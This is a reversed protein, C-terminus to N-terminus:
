GKKMRLILTAQHHQSIRYLIEVGAGMATIKDMRGSRSLALVAHACMGIDERLGVVTPTLQSVTWWPGKRRM